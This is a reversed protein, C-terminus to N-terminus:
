NPKSIHQSKKNRTPFKNSLVAGKLAMLNMFSNLRIEIAHQFYSLSQSECRAVHNYPLINEVTGPDFRHGLSYQNPLLM